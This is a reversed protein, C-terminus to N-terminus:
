DVQVHLPEVPPHPCPKTATQRMRRILPHSPSARGAHRATSKEKAKLPFAPIPITHIATSHLDFGDGGLVSGPERTKREGRLGRLEARLRRRPSMPARVQPECVRRNARSRSLKQILREVSKMLRGIPVESSAAPTSTAPMM